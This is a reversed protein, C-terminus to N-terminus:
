EVVVTLNTPPAVNSIVYEYAGMDWAAGQPRTTGLRDTTFFSSLDTGADIVASGPQPMGNAGLSPNKTIDHAGIQAQNSNYYDNYDRIGFNVGPCCGAEGSNYFVTSVDQIITNEVITGSLVWLTTVGNGSGMGLLTNNYVKTGAGTVGIQGTGTTYILGNTPANPSNRDDVVNNYIYSNTIANVNNGIHEVYIRATTFVGWKGDILNNYIRLDDLTSTTSGSGNAWVHFGDCHFADNASDWVIGEHLHNDHLYVHAAQSSTDGSGFIIATACNYAENHDVEVNTLTGGGEFGTAICFVADHVVNNYVHINADGNGFNGYIGSGAGAIDNISTKVYMPGIHLNRIIINSGGPTDGSNPAGYEIGDCSQQYALATGNATTRLIGNSGGDITINSFGRTEIMWGQCSGAQFIANNEWLLTVPSGSAGGALFSLFPGSTGSATIIGCLHVTTGPGIQSSGGGWNGASNFWTYMLANACSSGDATGSNANGLYVHAASGFCLNAFVLFPFLVFMLRSKM